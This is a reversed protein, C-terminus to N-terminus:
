IGVSLFEGTPYENNCAPCRQVVAFGSQHRQLVGKKAMNDMCPQCLYHASRGDQSAEIEALVFVGKSLEHLDYKEREAKQRVLEAVSAESQAALKELAQIQSLAAANKAVLDLCALNVKVIEDSFLKQARALKAEDRASIATSALDCATKIGTLATTITTVDM